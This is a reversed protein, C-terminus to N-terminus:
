KIGKAKRYAMTTRYYNYLAALGKEENETVDDRNLMTNVYSLASVKVNFEEGAIVRVTYTDGLKHASIGTINVIYKGDTLVAQNNTGGNIYAEISGKYDDKPTLYLRITTESDLLLSFPIDSIGSNGTDRIITYDSVAERAAIIDSETYESEGKMERYDSGIKWGRIEALMPQAYHGYDKIAIMLEREAGAVDSLGLVTDLYDSASYDQTITQGDGYHFTATIPEAMQISNIYCRFGYYTRGDDTYNFTEDYPQPTAAKGQITFDMWCNSPTYTVGEIEPLTMYFNVGIQGSLLLSHKAFEPKAPSSSGWVIKTGNDVSFTSVLPNTSLDIETLNNNRCRLEELLSLGKLNLSTLKNNECSLFKLATNERLDLETLSNNDCYLSELSTLYEIGKLSSIGMGNVNLSTLKEIEYESLSGDHNEDIFDAIYSRFAEDPFTDEDIAILEGEENIINISLERTDEGWTDRVIATFTFLGTVSTTGFIRGETNIELGGPLSGSAIGWRMDNIGYSHTGSAELRTDYKRGLVGYALSSTSVKPAVPDSTITLTVDRSATGATSSTQITFTYTGSTTPTGDFFGGNILELGKPITGGTISWTDLPAYGIAAYEFFNYTYIQGVSGDPLSSIIIEPKDYAKVPKVTLSYTRSACENMAEAKLTFTYVGAKSPTGSLEPQGEGNFINRGMFLRMGPPLEGEELKISKIDKIISSDRKHSRKLIFTYEEGAFLDGTLEDFMLNESNMNFPIYKQASGSANEAKVTFGGETELSDWTDYVPIGSLVGEESLSLGQMIDPMDGAISWKVPEDGLAELQARYPINTVASPLLRTIIAPASPTDSNVIIQFTMSSAGTNNRAELSFEYVGKSSPTGSITGSAGLTLGDPLEGGTLAWTLPDSGEAELSIEYPVNLDAEPLDPYTQIIPSEGKVLLRIIKSDSGARNSASVTFAFTGDLGPTGTIVGSASLELGPPIDGSHLTWTIPQTGKANLQASYTEALKADPLSTTMIEPKIGSAIKITCTQAASNIANSATLTFTKEGAESPTGSIKGSADLELGAPLEGATMSWTIPRTGQAALRVSYPVDIVGDPLSTTLIEVPLDPANNAELIDLASKVDLFGYRTYDKAYDKNAGDIIAQMIESPAAAPVASALLAIAGTVHPTAMSTGTLYLYTQGDDQLTRDPRETGLTSSSPATSLIDTGPASIDVHSSSYNSSSNHPYGESNQANAIVIMNEIGTYSAPYSYLEDGIEQGNNGAAVCMITRGTESIAKMALYEPTTTQTDPPDYSLNTRGYSMNVAPINLNPNDNLIKLLENLANLIEDGYSFGSADFIRLSILKTNWNMGTVGTNNNGSAGITGAVHTGHGHRDSYESPSTSAAFSASYGSTEFNANIDAHGFDVGSDIVAVYVNESGTEKEWVEPARVAKLGWLKDYHTDNPTVGDDLIKYRWNLSAGIVDSRAKLRELMVQESVTESKVVAFIGGAAQSLAEFTRTVNGGTGSALSSYSAMAGGSPAKFVVLVEGPVFDEEALVPGSLGCMFMVIILVAGIKKLM